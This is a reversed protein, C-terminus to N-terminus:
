YDIAPGQAWCRGFRGVDCGNRLCLGFTVAGGTVWLFSTYAIEIKRWLLIRNIVGVRNFFTYKDNQSLNPILSIDAMSKPIYNPEHITLSQVKSVVIKRASSWWKKFALPELFLVGQLAVIRM